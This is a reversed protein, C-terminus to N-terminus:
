TQNMKETQLALTPGLAKNMCLFLELVVSSNGAQINIIMRLILLGLSVTQM